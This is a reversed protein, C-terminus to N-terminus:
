VRNAYQVIRCQHPPVILEIHKKILKNHKNLHICFLTLNNLGVGRIASIANLTHFFIGCVVEM